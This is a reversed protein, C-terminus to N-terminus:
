HGRLVQVAADYDGNLLHRRLAPYLEAARPSLLEKDFLGHAFALIARGEFCSGSLPGFQHDGEFDAPIKVEADIFAFVQREAESLDQTEGRRQYGVVAHLAKPVWAQSESPSVAEETGKGEVSDEDEFLARVTRRKTKGAQDEPSDGRAPRKQSAKASSSSSGSSTPTRLNRADKLRTILDTKVGVTSEGHKRLEARLEAVTMTKSDPM